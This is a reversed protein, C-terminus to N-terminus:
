FREFKKGAQKSEPTHHFGCIEDGTVISYLFEDGEEANVKANLFRIVSRAEWKAPSHIPAAM